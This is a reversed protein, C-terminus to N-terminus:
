LHYYIIFFVAWMELELLLQAALFIEESVSFCLQTMAWPKQKKRKTNERGTKGRLKVLSHKERSIKLASEQVLAWHQTTGPGEANRFPCPFGLTTNEVKPKNRIQSWPLNLHLNGTCHSNGDWHHEPADAGFKHLVFGLSCSGQGQGHPFEKELARQPPPLPSSFSNEMSM